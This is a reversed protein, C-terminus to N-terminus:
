RRYKKLVFSFDGLNKPFVMEVVGIGRAAYIVMGQVNINDTTGSVRVELCDKYAQDGIEIDDISVAKAHLGQDDNWETGVDINHPRGLVEPKALDDSDLDWEGAQDWRMFSVSPKSMTELLGTFAKTEPADSLASPMDPGKLLQLLDEHGTYETVEKYYTKGNIARVGDVRIIMTIARQFHSLVAGALSYEYLYQPTAPPFYVSGNGSSSDHESRAVATVREPAPEVVPPDRRVLQDFLKGWEVRDFLTAIALFSVVSVLWVAVKGM